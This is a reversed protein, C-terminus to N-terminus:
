GRERPSTVLVGAQVSKGCLPHCAAQPWLKGSGWSHDSSRTDSQSQQLGARAGALVINEWEQAATVSVPSSAQTNKNAVFM